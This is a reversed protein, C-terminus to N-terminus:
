SFILRIKTMLPKRILVKHPFCWLDKWSYLTGKEKYFGRAVGAQNTVVVVYYNNNNLFKIAQKVGYSFGPPNQFAM